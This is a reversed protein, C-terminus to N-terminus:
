ASIEVQERQEAYSLYHIISRVEHGCPPGLVTGGGSMSQIQQTNGEQNEDLAAAEGGAGGFFIM